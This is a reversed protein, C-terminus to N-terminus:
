VNIACMQEVCQLLSCCELRVGERCMLPVCIILYTGYIHICMFTYVHSMWTHWEHTYVHTYVHIHISSENVHTGNIHICMLAYVQSMWTHAILTYVCTYVCSHTWMFLTYYHTVYRLWIYSVAWDYTHCSEKMHTVRSMWIHSTIACMLLTNRVYEHPFYDKNAKLNLWSLISLWPSGRRFKM